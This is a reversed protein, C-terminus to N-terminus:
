LAKRRVKGTSSKVLEDRFEIVSPVKYDVLRERCYDLIERVEIAEHPVIIAKIKEDGYETEVGVIVSERVKPHADLVEEVEYPNVKFGGRNIFFSRRGVLYVRGDSDKYGVDGPFFYGNIFSKKTQDPANPYGDTAGPSKIGIDGESGAPLKGGDEGFIDVVVGELPQGVCDIAEAQPQDLNLSITGTETCGYLQRVGIGYRKEFGECTPRRLPASSSFCFRLSSFDVPSPWKTEALMAFMFPVGIFLTIKQEDILRGVLRREFAVIPVLTAGSVTSAVM